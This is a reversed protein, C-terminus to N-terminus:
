FPIESDKIPQHFIATGPPFEPLKRKREMEYFAEATTPLEIPFQDLTIWEETPVWRNDRKKWSELLIRAGAVACLKAAGSTLIKERRKSRDSYDTVQIFMVNCARADRAPEIALVDFVNWLDVSIDVMPVHGCASCKRKGKAPFRKRREVSDVLYGQERWREMSRRQLDSMLYREVRKGTGAACQSREDVPWSWLAM